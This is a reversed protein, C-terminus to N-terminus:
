LKFQFKKLFLLCNPYFLKEKTDTLKAKSWFDNLTNM